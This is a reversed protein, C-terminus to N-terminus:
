DRASGPISGSARPGPERPLVAEVAFGPADGRPGAALSGGLAAV